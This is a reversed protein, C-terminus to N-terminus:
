EEQLRRFTRRVEEEYITFPPPPDPPSPPPAPAQEFRGNFFNLSDPLQNDSVPTPIPKKKYNTM